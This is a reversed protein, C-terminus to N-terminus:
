HRKRQNSKAQNTNSQREIHQTQVPTLYAQTALLANSRIIRPTLDSLVLALGPNPHTCHTPM